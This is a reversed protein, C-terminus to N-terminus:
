VAGGDLWNKRKGLVKCIKYRNKDTPRSVGKVCNTITSVAVDARRALESYSMNIKRLHQSLKKYNFPLDNKPEANNSKGLPMSKIKADLWGSPKELVECWRDRAEFGPTSTGTIANSLVGSSVGSLRALEKQSMGIEVLRRRLKKADFPTTKGTTNLPQKGELEVIPIAVPVKTPEEVKPPTVYLDEPRPPATPVQQIIIPDPEPMFPKAVLYITEMAYEPTNSILEMVKIRDAITPETSPKEITPQSEYKGTKRIAPLIEDTVVDQFKRATENSAKFCLKYFINEPIFDPIENESDQIGFEYFWNKLSQKNIREYTTNNKVERKVIGLGRAVNELNLHATGNEDLYGHVGNINMVENKM